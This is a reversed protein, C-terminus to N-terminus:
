IEFTALSSFVDSGRFFDEYKGNFGTPEYPDKYHSAIIGICSPLIEAGLWGPYKENSRVGNNSMKFNLPEIKFRSGQGPNWDGRTDYLQHNKM